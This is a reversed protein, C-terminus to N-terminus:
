INHVKEEFAEFSNQLRDTIKRRKNLINDGDQVFKLDDDLSRKVGQIRVDTTEKLDKVADIAVEKCKVQLLLICTVVTYLLLLDTNPTDYLLILTTQFFSVLCRLKLQGLLSRKKKTQLQRWDLLTMALFQVKCHASKQPNRLSVVYTIQLYRM